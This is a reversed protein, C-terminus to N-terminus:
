TAAEKTVHGFGWAANAGAIYRMSEMMHSGLVFLDEGGSRWDCKGRSRVVQLDGIAGDDILRKVHHEYPNARHHAVAVRAPGTAPKWCRTPRPRRRPSRSRASSAGPARRPLRSSWRRTATPGVRVCRWSTSTSRTWCRATTPTCPAPAPARAWPAAGSPTMTPSRLWRSGRFASSPSTWATATTAAARGDIIGALYSAM